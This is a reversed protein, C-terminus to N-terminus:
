GTDMERSEVAGCGFLPLALVSDFTIPKAFDDLMAPNKQIHETTAPIGTLWPRGIMGVGRGLGTERYFGGLDTNQHRVQDPGAPSRSAWPKEPLGEGYGFQKRKSLDRFERFPGYLGIGLELHTRETDPVRGATVQYLNEPSNRSHFQIPWDTSLSRLSRRRVPM